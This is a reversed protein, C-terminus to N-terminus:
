LNNHPCCSVRLGFDSASGDSAEAQHYCTFLYLFSAALKCRYLQAYLRIKVSKVCSSSALLNSPVRHYVEMLGTFDM